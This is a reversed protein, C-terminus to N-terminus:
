PHARRAQALGRSSSGHHESIGSDDDIGCPGPEADGPPVLAAGALADVTGPEHDQYAAPKPEGIVVGTGIAASELALAEDLVEPGGYLGTDSGRGASKLM